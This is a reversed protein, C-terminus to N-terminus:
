WTHGYKEKLQCNLGNINRIAVIINPSIRLM